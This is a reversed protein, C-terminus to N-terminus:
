PSFSRSAIRLRFRRTSALSRQSAHARARCLSAGALHLYTQYDDLAPKTDDYAEELADTLVRLVPLYELYMPLKATIPAQKIDETYQGANPLVPKPPEPVAIPQAAAHEAGKAYIIWAGLVLVLLISLGLFLFVLWDYGNELLRQVANWLVFIGFLTGVIKWFAGDEM